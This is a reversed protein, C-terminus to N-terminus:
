QGLTVAKGDKRIARTFEKPGVPVPGTILEPINYSNMFATYFDPDAQPLLFPKHERGKDDIYTFYPRTYLGDDRRSSFALWRSNSSWSHYSDVDNSNAAQMPRLSKDALNIIYLDADKHWISFNGYASLTFVLYKGDPSVRPFKASRGDMSTDGGNPSTASYLTDVETGFSRSAPDFSISCLSYKVKRYSDPMSDVAQASCFYLTRGDPSFTPFTEYRDAAMLQPCTVVEHHQVDYVVVDSSLDYVEIRNRDHMHYMQHIDNSSFAIFNGSPHWSPYVLNIAHPELTDVPASSAQPYAASSGNSSHTQPVDQRESPNIKGNIREIDGDSLIYTGGNQQRMHLMMKDPQQMCFSHCNMCNHDTQRNEAIPTQEYGTLDRQYIGMELWFEYGPAILRFALHSDIPEKAVHINFNRFAMWEGKEKAYVTVSIRQGVAQALLDHWEDEDFLFKGNDAREILEDTGCALRCLADDGKFDRLMFRLPAINAPITVETYDPFIAPLRDTQKANEPITEGCAVCLALTLMILFRKIM